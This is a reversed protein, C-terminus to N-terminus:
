GPDEGVFYTHITAALIRARESEEVDISRGTLDILRAMADAVEASVPFPPGTADESGYFIAPLSSDIRSVVPQEMLARSTFAVSFAWRGREEEISEFAETFTEEMHESLDYAAGFLGAKSADELAQPDPCSEAIERLRGGFSECFADAEIRLRVLTSPPAVPATEAVLSVHLMALGMSFAECASGLDDPITVPTGEFLYDAYSEHFALIPAFSAYAAAFESGIRGESTWEVHSPELRGRETTSLLLIAGMAILVACVIPKAM